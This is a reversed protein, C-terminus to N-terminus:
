DKLAFPDDEDSEFVEQEDEPSFFTM